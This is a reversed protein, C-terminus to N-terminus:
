PVHARIARVQSMVPTLLPEAALGGVGRRWSAVVGRRWPSAVTSGGVHLERLMSMLQKAGIRLTM